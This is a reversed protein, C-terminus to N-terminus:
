LLPLSRAAYRHRIKRGLVPDELEIAFDVTPRVGGIAPLTGGFMLTGPDLGTMGGFRAILEGPPLMASVEGEQYLVADAEPGSWARLILRDWHAAVDEFLWFRAAIPKDCMQKSATVSYTEVARDTHDSGVGVWLRTASQLLVFEVEGGSETGSVEIEPGTTLRSTAVRYFVPTSPPRAVGLAELEAIHKEVLAPDRGTWGAIVARNVAATCSTEAAGEVLTLSLTHDPM